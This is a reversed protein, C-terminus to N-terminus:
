GRYVEGFLHVLESDTPGSGNIEYECSTCIYSGDNEVSHDLTSCDLGCENCPKM